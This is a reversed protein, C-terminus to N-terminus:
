PNCYTYHAEPNQQSAFQDQKLIQPLQVGRSKFEAYAATGIMGALCFRVSSSISSVIPMCFKDVALFCRPGPTNDPATRRDGRFSVLADVAAITAFALLTSM